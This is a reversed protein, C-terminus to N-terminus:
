FSILNENIRIKGAHAESDVFIYRNLNTSNKKM